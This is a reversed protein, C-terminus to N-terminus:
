GFRMIMWRIVMYLIVIGIAWLSTGFAVSFKRGRKIKLYIECGIAVIAMLIALGICFLGVASPIDLIVGGLGLNFTSSVVAGVSGVFDLVVGGLALIIARNGMRESSSLIVDPDTSWGKVKTVKPDLFALNTKESKEEAIAKAAKMREAEIRKSKEWELETEKDAM